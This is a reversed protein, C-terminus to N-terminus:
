MMELSENTYEWDEKRTTRKNALVGFEFRPWRLFM